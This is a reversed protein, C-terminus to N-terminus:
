MVGSLLVSMLVMRARRELCYRLRKPTAHARKAMPEGLWSLSCGVQKNTLSSNAALGDSSTPSPMACSNRRAAEGGELDRVCETPVSRGTLRRRGKTRAVNRGPFWRVLMVRDRLSNREVQGREFM